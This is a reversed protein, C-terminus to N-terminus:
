RLEVWTNLTAGTASVNFMYSAGPPVVFTTYLVPQGGSIGPFSGTAVRLGNVYGDVSVGYSASPYGSASVIIPKGTTNYYTTGLSRSAKVDQWSQGFGISAMAALAQGGGGQITTPGAVWTGAAAEAIDIFGVVRFPVGARATTSYGGWGAVGTIATSAVATYCNTFYTGGGGTGTGFGTIVTGQPIGAGSVAMGLTITGSTVASVTLVGTTAAISGTVVAGTNIAVTNLLTTEDLNVGGALNAVALEVTGANDIALLALRASQGNITGLTAGSPVVLSIAAAVSRTNVASSNLSNARFDLSTPNLTLTLANAAISAAIPQIQKQKSSLVAVAQAVRLPTMQKVNDTGAEAEAQSALRTVTNGWALQKIAALLQNTLGSDTGLGAAALVSLLESQSSQLGSQVENLWQATVLTGLEATAPNGDHFLGDPSDIPQLVDQM